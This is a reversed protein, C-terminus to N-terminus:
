TDKKKAKKEKGEKKAKKEGIREDAEAGKKKKKEPEAVDAAEAETKRKKEKKEKKSKKEKKAKKEKEKRERKREKELRKNKFPDFVSSSSSDSSYDAMLRKRQEELERRFRTDEDEEFAAMSASKVQMGAELRSKLIQSARAAAEAQRKQAMEANARREIAARVPDDRYKASCADYAHPM